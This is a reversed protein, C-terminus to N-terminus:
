LSTPLVLHEYLVKAVPAPSNTTCSAMSMVRHQEGNYQADNVGPVISVDVDDSLASILVKRAGGRL